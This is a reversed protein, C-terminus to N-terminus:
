ARRVVVIGLVMVGFSISVALDPMGERVHAEVTWALVACLEVVDWRLYTPLRDKVGFDNM